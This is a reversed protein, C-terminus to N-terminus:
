RTDYLRMQSRSRSLCRSIQDDSGLQQSSTAPASLAEAVLGESLDMLSVRVVQKLVCDRVSLGNRLNVRIYKIQNVVHCSPTQPQMIFFQRDVKMRGALQGAGMAIPYGDAGMAIPYGDAGM